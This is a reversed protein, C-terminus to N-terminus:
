FFREILKSPHKALLRTVDGFAQLFGSYSSSKPRTQSEYHTLVARTCIVNKYNKSQSRISFDVDNFGVPFSTDLGGILDFKKRSIVACAFTVASVEFCYSPVFDKFNKRQFPHGAIGNHGLAIGMHQITNNEFLLVAGVVGVEDIIAHETMSELWYDSLAVTDNNLFCIVDGSSQGVAFNCIASYNFEGQFKLVKVGNSKLEDLLIRTATEKSDNDVVIVEIQLNRTTKIVSNICSRLLDPKDRTPVIISIKPFAKNIDRDHSHEEGLNKPKFNSSQKSIVKSFFYRILSILLRTFKM